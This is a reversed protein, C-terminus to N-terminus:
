MSKLTGMGVPVSLLGNVTLHGHPIGTMLAIKLSDKNMGEM